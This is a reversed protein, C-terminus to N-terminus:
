NAADGPEAAPAPDRAAILELGAAVGAAFRQRFHQNILEPGDLFWAVWVGERQHYLAGVGLSRACGLLKDVGGAGFRVASLRDETLGSLCHRIEVRYVRMRSGDPSTVSVTIRQGDHLAAQHGNEPDADLDAPDFEVQALAQAPEAEVRTRSLAAEATVRYETRAPSFEALELGSLSLSGLRADVADPMNYTYVRDDQEDLVFMVDGDSWIGRPSGNGAKLLSRFSFELQEHRALAEDEIRYAFLRKAGDDSVWLTIGDSWLGRPSKNLKDLRYRALWEGSALAYAFLEDKVSDLVYITEDQSWIGRPDRNDEHLEFERQEARQGGQLDYAFLRDQGSDAIWLTTRDSWIGHSFRNRRDLEFERESQRDGSLLDYAFLRDPGAAANEVVWLTQGDSWLGTPLDNNTDLAEIDRTVNWEFEVESPVPKPPPGGGGGGGGGGTPSSTRRPPDPPRDAALLPTGLATPSWVGAGAATVARVQLEYSSDNSLQALTYQLSGSRWAGALLTWDLGPAQAAPEPRYRIDYATIQAGGNSLPPQWALRLEADGASASVNRPETPLGREVVRISYEYLPAVALLEHRLQFTVDGADCVGIVLSQNIARRWNIVREIATECVQAVPPPDNSLIPGSVLGVNETGFGLVGVHDEHYVTVDTRFRFRYWEGAYMPFSRPDPDMWAAAGAEPPPLVAEGIALYRTMALHTQATALEVQGGPVTDDPRAISIDLAYTGYSDFHPPCADYLKVTFVVSSDDVTIPIDRGTDDGNCRHEAVADFPTLEARFVVTSYSEPDLHELTVTGIIETAMPVTHGPSLRISITPSPGLQQAAESRPQQPRDRAAPGPASRAGEGGAASARLAATPQDRLDHGGAGAPSLFGSAVAAILGLAVLLGRLRDM